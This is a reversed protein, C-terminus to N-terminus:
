SVAKVVIGFTARADQIPVPMLRTAIMPKAAAAIQDM